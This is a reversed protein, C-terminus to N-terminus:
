TSRFRTCRSRRSAKLGELLRKFGKDSVPFPPVAFPVDLTNAESVRGTWSGAEGALARVGVTLASADVTFRSTGEAFRWAGETFIFGAAKFISDAAKFNRAGNEFISAGNTWIGPPSKFTRSGRKLISVERQLRACPSECRSRPSKLIFAPDKFGCAPNESRAPGKERMGCQFRSEAPNIPGQASVWSASQRTAHGRFHARRPHWAGRKRPCAKRRMGVCAHRM